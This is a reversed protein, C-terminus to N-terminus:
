PVAGCRESVYPQPPDAGEPFSQNSPMVQSNVTPAAPASKPLSGHNVVLVPQQTPPYVPNANLWKQDNRCRSPTNLPNPNFSSVVRLAERYVTILAGAENPFNHGWQRLVREAVELEQECPAFRCNSGEHCSKNSFHCPHLWMTPQKYYHCLNGDTNFPINAYRMNVMPEVVWREFRGPTYLLHMNLKVLEAHSYEYFPNFFEPVNYDRPPRCHRHTKLISQVDLVGPATPNQGKSQGSRLSRIRDTNYTYRFKNRCTFDPSIM